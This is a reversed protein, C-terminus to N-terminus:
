SAASAIVATGPLFASGSRFSRIPAIGTTTGRAAPQVLGDDAIDRHLWSGNTSRASPGRRGRLDLCRETLMHLFEMLLDAADINSLKV